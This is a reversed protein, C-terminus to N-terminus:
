ITISGVNLFDWEMNNAFLEDTSSDGIYLVCKDKIFEGRSPSPKLTDCDDRTQIVDFYETLCNTDLIEMSNEKNSNTIIVQTVIPHLDSVLTHIHPFSDIHYLDDYFFEKKTATINTIKVCTVM